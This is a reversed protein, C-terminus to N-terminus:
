LSYYYKRVLKAMNERRKKLFTEYNKIDYDVIEEPIANEELNAKLDKENEIEANYSGSFELVKKMYDKPAVDDVKKNIDDRLYVFNAIKNYGDKDIGQSILYSKPFIHHINPTTMEAVKLNKTLFGHCNLKRQAAVFVSWFQNTTNTKDFEDPLTSEWYIDTLEQMEMKKVMEKLDGPKKIRKFDETFPLQTGTLRSKLLSLVFLRRM